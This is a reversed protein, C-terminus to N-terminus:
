TPSYQEGKISRTPPEVARELNEFRSSPRWDCAAMGFKPAEVMIERTSRRIARYNSPACYKPPEAAPAVRTLDGGTGRGRARHASRGQRSPDPDGSTTVQRVGENREDTLGLGDDRVCRPLRAGPTSVNEPSQEGRDDGQATRWGAAQSPAAPPTRIM